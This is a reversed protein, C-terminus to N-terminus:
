ATPLALVVIIWAYWAPVLDRVIIAGVISSVFGLAGRTLVHGMPHNLALRAM